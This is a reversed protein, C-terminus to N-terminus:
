WVDGTLKPPHNRLNEAINSTWGATYQSVSESPTPSGKVEVTDKWKRFSTNKEESGPGWNFVSISKKSNRRRPRRPPTRISGQTEIQPVRKSSQTPHNGGTPNGGGRRPGQRRSAYGPNEPQYSGWHDYDTVKGQSANPSEGVWPAETNSKTLRQVFGEVIDNDSQTEPDESVRLQEEAVESAKSEETGQLKGIPIPVRWEHPLVRRNPGRHERNHVLLGSDDTAVFFTSVALDSVIKTPIHIRNVPRLSTHDLNELETHQIGHAVTDDAFRTLTRNIETDLIGGSVMRASSTTSSSLDHQCFDNGNQYISDKLSHEKQTEVNRSASSSEWSSSSECVNCPAGDHSLKPASSTTTDMPKLADHNPTPQKEQTGTAEGQLLYILNQLVDRHLGTIAPNSELSALVAELAQAALKNGDVHEAHKQFYSSLMGKESDGLQAASLLVDVFKLALSAM